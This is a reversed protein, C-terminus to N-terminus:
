YGRYCHKHAIFVEEESKIHDLVFVDLILLAMPRKRQLLEMYEPPMKLTWHANIDLFSEIAMDYVMLEQVNECSLECMTKVRRAKLALDGANRRPKPFEMDPGDKDEINLGLSTLWPKHPRFLRLAKYISVLVAIVQEVHDADTQAPLLQALASSFVGSLAALALAPLM